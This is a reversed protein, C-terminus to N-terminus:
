CNKNNSIIYNQVAGLSSAETTVINSVAILFHSDLSRKAIVGLDEALINTGLNTNYIITPIALLNGGDTITKMIIITAM